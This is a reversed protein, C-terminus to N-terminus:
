FFMEKNGSIAVHIVEGSKKEAGELVEGIRSEAGGVVQMEVDEDEFQLSVQRDDLGREGGIFGGMLAPMDHEDIAGSVSEALEPESVVRNLVSGDIEGAAGEESGRGVDESLVAENHVQSSVSGAYDSGPLSAPPASPVVKEDNLFGLNDVGLNNVDLRTPEPRFPPVSTTGGVVGGASANQAHTTIERPPSEDFNVVKRNAVSASTIVAYDDSPARSSLSPYMRPNGATAVPVPPQLRATEQHRQWQQHQERKQQQERRFSDLNVIDHTYDNQVSFVTPDTVKRTPPHVEPDSPPLTSSLSLLLCFSRYICLYLIIFLLNIADQNNITIM